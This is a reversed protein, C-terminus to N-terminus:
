KFTDCAYESPCYKPFCAQQEQIAGLENCPTGGHENETCIRTRIETGNGCTVTCDKWASWEGM